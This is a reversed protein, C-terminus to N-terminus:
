RKIIFTFKNNHLFVSCLSISASLDYCADRLLEQIRQSPLECPGQGSQVSCELGRESGDDNCDEVSTWVQAWSPVIGWQGTFSTSDLELM